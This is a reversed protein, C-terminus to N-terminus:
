LLIIELLGRKGTYYDIASSYRYHQAEWVLGARVPNDHLYHLRQEVRERSDLAVPHYGAQWIQAYQNDPNARGAVGFARVIWERRSEIIRTDQLERFVRKATFKKLDRITNAIPYADSGSCILHFHNPMICWAHIALEKNNQCFTLSEIIIDAFYPRSFLDIWDTITCTIFHPSDNNTIRFAESM